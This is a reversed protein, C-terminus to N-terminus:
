VLLTCPLFAPLGNRFGSFDNEIVAEITMVGRKQGL